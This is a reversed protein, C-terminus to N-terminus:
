HTKVTNYYGFCLLFVGEGASKKQWRTFLLTSDCCVARGESRVKCYSGNLKSSLPLTRVSSSFLSFDCLLLLLHWLSLVKIYWLDWLPFIDQRVSDVEKLIVYIELSYQSSSCEPSSFSSLQLQVMYSFNSM